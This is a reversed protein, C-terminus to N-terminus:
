ILGYGAACSVAQSATKARLKEKASRIRQKIAGETVGLRGAIEKLLLGERMMALAEIEAKTLNTPPMTGVHMESFREQLLRLEAETYERDSRAFTAFSRQGDEDIPPCSVAAGFRMGYEAAEGMVGRTDHLRIASWRTVGDHSYVWRIVPDHVLYGRRTYRDIWAQPMTNRESAPLIFGVRLAVYYGAPALEGFSRECDFSAM